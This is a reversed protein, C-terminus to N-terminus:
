LAQQRQEAAPVTASASSSSSPQTSDSGVAATDARIEATGPKRRFYQDLMSKQQLLEQLRPALESRVLRVVTEGNKYTRAHDVIRVAM